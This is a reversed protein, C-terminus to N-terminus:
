CLAAGARGGRSPTGSTRRAAVRAPSEPERRARLRLSELHAALDQRMREARPTLGELSFLDWHSLLPSVVSDYHVSSNYIGAQAIVLERELFDPLLGAGPMGCQMVERCIAEVTPSPAIDLAATVLGLFFRYHHDEDESIRQLLLWGIKDAPEAAKGANRHFVQAARAQATVFVLSELLGKDGTRCGAQRAAMRDAEMQRPDLGRTAALFARLAIAHRGKEAEWRGLWAGWAEYKGFKRSLHSVCGPLEDQAALSLALAAQVPVSFKSHAPEWPVEQFDAGEGWPVYSTVPDWDTVTHLHDHLAKAVFPELETLLDTPM